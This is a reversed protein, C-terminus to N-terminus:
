MEIMRNILDEIVNIVNNIEKDHYKTPNDQLNRLKDIISSLTTTQNDNM